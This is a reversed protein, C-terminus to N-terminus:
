YMMNGSDFFTGRSKWYKFYLALAMRENDLYFTVTGHYLYHWMSITTGYINKLPSVCLFNVVQLAFDLSVYNIRLFTCYLFYKPGNGFYNTMWTLVQLSWMIFTVPTTKSELKALSTFRVMEFCVHFSCKYKFLCFNVFCSCIFIIWM